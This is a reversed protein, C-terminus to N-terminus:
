LNVPHPPESVAIPLGEYTKPDVNHAPSCVVVDFVVTASSHHSLTKTFSLYPEYTYEGCVSCVQLPSHALYEACDVPVLEEQEEAAPEPVDFAFTRSTEPTLPGAESSVFSDMGISTTSQSSPSVLPSQLKVHAARPTTVPTSPLAGTLPKHIGVKVLSNIAEDLEISGTTYRVRQRDITQAVLAKLSPVGWVIKSPEQKADVVCPNDHILVSKDNLSEINRLSAPLSALNNDFLWLLRLQQLRGITSPLQELKNQHLYLCQLNVLEGIQAPLSVLENEHVTLRTLNRLAGISAPLTPLRNNDVWLQELRSLAGLALPLSELANSSVSLQSLAELECIEDPLETLGNFHAYIIELAKMHKIDSPISTVQNRQIDVKELLPLKCIQKPFEKLQNFQIMLRKVTKLKAFSEPFETIQNGAFSLNELPLAALVEIEEDTVDTLSCAKIEVHSAAVYKTLDEPIRTISKNFVSYSSDYILGSPSRPTSGPTDTGDSESSDSDAYAGLTHRLALPNVSLARSLASRPVPAKKRRRTPPKVPPLNITPITTSTSTTTTIASSAGSATAATATSSSSAHEHPVPSSSTSSLASTPRHTDARTTTKSTSPSSFSTSGSASSSLRPSNLPSDAHSSESDYSAGPRRVDDDNKITSQSSSSSSAASSVASTSQPANAADAPLQNM